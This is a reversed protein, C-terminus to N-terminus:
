VVGLGVAGAWRGYILNGLAFLSSWIAVCGAVWGLSALLLNDGHGTAADIGAERRIAAWGPGAPQVKRYFEVLRERSTPTSVFATVLWTLTTLAVTWLVSQAFPLELGCKRMLFLALSIVFSSIMAVVEC